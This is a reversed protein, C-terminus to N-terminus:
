WSNRCTCPSNLEQWSGGGLIKYSNSKLMIIVWRPISDLNFYKQINNITTLAEIQIFQLLSISFNLSKPNM